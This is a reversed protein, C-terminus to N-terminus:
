KEKKEEKREEKRKQPLKKGAARYVKEIWSLGGTKKRQEEEQKEIEKITKYQQKIDEKNIYSSRRQWLKKFSKGKKRNANIEANFVADRM